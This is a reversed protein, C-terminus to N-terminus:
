GASEASRAAKSSVRSQIDWGSPAPRGPETRNGYAEDAVQRVRKLELTLEFKLMTYLFTASWRARDVVKTGAMATATKM